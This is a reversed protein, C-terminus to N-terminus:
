RNGGDVTSLGVAEAGASQLAEWYLEVPHAVRYAGGLHGRLQIECGPNASAVVTTGAGEVQAAKRRGLEASAAPHLVSYMGAAGCCMGVEDIEVPEYGAATVISRPEAVIRQAHRLHCPDQMAVKGRPLDLEPLRGDAIAAAVVETVDKVKAALVEGADGAWHGYEKLHAGCGAADTVILDAAVFAKVNRRALRRTGDADGDHAALAGCCTQGEPIVVRYGARRLVEVTATHVDGFWPDMVCGALLAAVGSSTPAIPTFTTGITSTPKKPLARLGGISTRVQPPM